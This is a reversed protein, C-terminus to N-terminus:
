LEMFFPQMRMHIRMCKPTREHAGGSLKQTNEPSGCPEGTKIIQFAYRDHIQIEFIKQSM